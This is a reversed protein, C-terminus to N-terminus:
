EPVAQRFLFFPFM